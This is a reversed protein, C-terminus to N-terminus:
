QGRPPAPIMAGFTQALGKLTAALSDPTALEVTMQPGDAKIELGALAEDAVKSFIPALMAMPGPPPQKKLEELKQKAVGKLQQGIMSMAAATEPKGTAVDGRLLTKGSFNVRLSISKVDKVMGATAPDKGVLPALIEDLSKGSAKTLGTWLPEACYELIIDNDFSAHQLQKLLPPEGHHAALM